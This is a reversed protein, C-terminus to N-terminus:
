KEELSRGSPQTFVNQNNKNSNDITFQRMNYTNLITRPYMISKRKTSFAALTQIFKKTQQMM